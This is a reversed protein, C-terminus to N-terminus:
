YVCESIQNAEKRRPYILEKRQTLHGSAAVQCLTFSIAFLCGCLHSMPASPVSIATNNVATPTRGCQQISTLFQTQRGCKVACGSLYVPMEQAFSTTLILLKLSVHQYFINQTKKRLLINKKPIIRIRKTLIMNIKRMSFYLSFMSVSKTSESFLFFFVVDSLSFSLLQFCLWGVYLDKIITLM